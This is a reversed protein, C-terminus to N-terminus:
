CQGDERVMKVLSLKEAKPEKKETAKKASRGVPKKTDKLETM